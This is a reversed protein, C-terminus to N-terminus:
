NINGAFLTLNPYATVSKGWRNTTMAFSSSIPMHAKNEHVM